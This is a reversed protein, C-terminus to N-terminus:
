ARAAARRRVVLKRLEDAIFISSSVLVILGWDGWTLPVTGLAMQLLPLRTALFQLILSVV